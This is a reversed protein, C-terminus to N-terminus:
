LNRLGKYSGAYILQFARHTAPTGIVKLTEEKTLVSSLQKSRKARLADIPGDLEQKLAERYLFLLASLAQNQTSPAVNKDVVLYTLFAEIEAAGM